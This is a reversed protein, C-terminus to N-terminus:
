KPPNENFKFAALHDFFRKLESSLHKNVKEVAQTNKTTEEEFRALLGRKTAKQQSGQQQQGKAPESGFIEDQLSKQGEELSELRGLIDALTDLKSLDGEFKNLIDALANLGTKVTSVETSQSQQAPPKTQGQQVPKSMQFEGINDSNLSKVFELVEDSQCNECYLNVTKEGQLSVSGHIIVYQIDDFRTVLARKLEEDSIDLAKYFKISKEVIM